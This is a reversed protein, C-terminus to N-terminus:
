SVEMVGFIIALAGITYAAVRLSSNSPDSCGQVMCVCVFELTTDTVAAAGGKKSRGPTM